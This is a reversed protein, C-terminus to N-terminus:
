VRHDIGEDLLTGAGCPRPEVTVERHRGAREAGARDGRREPRRLPAAVVVARQPEPLVALARRVDVVDSSPGDDDPPRGHRWLARLGNRVKRGRNSLVGLAVRRLWAEPDDYAGVISWKGILRVFAEQVAEEAEHRDGGIAGIVAVLRVYSAEYLERLGDRPTTV